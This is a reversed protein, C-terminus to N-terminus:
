FSIRAKKIKEEEKEKGDRKDGKTKSEFLFEIKMRYQMRLKEREKGLEGNGRRGM